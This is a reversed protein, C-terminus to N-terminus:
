REAVLNEICAELKVNDLFHVQINLDHDAHLQYLLEAKDDCDRVLVHSKIMGCNERITKVRDIDDSTKVEFILTKFDYTKIIYFNETTINTSYIEHNENIRVCHVRDKCPRINRIKESGFFFYNM